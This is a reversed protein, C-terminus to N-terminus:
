MSWVCNLWVSPVMNENNLLAAPFVSRLCKNGYSVCIFWLIIEGLMVMLRLINKSDGCKFFYIFLNM